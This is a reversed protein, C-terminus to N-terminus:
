TQPFPFGRKSNENKGIQRVYINDESKNKLPVSAGEMPTGSM